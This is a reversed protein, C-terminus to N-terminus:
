YLYFPPFHLFNGIINKNLAQGVRQTAPRARLAAMVGLGPVRRRAAIFRDWDRAPSVDNLRIPSKDRDEAAM